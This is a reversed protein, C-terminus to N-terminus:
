GNLDAFQLGLHGPTITLGEFASFSLERMEKGLVQKVQAFLALYSLKSRKAWNLGLSEACRRISQADPGEIECFNGFPMEDLSIELGALTYATRYKEYMVMLEFGLAELIERATQLDSVEVELEARASVEQRPDSAGKYTLRARTDLRLRLAQFANSLRRDPTDFRLNTELTRPQSMRAGLTILRKELASLRSLYFKAEQELKSGM